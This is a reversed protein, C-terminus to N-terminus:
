VSNALASEIRKKDIEAAPITVTREQDKIVVGRNYKGAIEYVCKGFSAISAIPGLIHAATEVSFWLVSGIDMNESSAQKLSLAKAPVGQQRLALELEQALFGAEASNDCIFSLEM